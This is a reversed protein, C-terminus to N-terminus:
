AVQEQENSAGKGQMSLYRSRDKLVGSPGHAIVASARVRAALGCIEHADSFIERSFTSWRVMAFVVDRARAARQGLAFAGVKGSMVQVSARSAPVIPAVSTGPVDRGCTRGVCGLALAM